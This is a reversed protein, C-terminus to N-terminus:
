RAAAYGRWEGLEFDYLKCHRTTHVYDRLRYPRAAVQAEWHAHLATTARPLHYYPIRPDVHHAVHLFINHWFVNVWTPLVHVTSGEVQGGFKSWRRRPQWRVDTAIHQIYVAWGIAWNWLLWPVGFVKLWMWAAGAVGGGSRWGAVLLAASMAVAFAAVVARDRRFAAGQGPPPALRVIRGWWIDRLYYIGSGYASWEVRHLLKAWAPLGAFQAPTVPHWVFDMGECTAFAHHIRNHGYAWVSFAHLTPLMALQGVLYNLRRSDFLAGHAADHGLVFLASITQGALLWAVVLVLPQDTSMLLWTLGALMALDRGVALLGRWTPRQYCEAPIDAAVVSLAVARRSPAEDLPSPASLM